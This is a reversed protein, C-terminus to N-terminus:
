ISTAFPMIKKERGFKREALTQMHLNFFTVPHLTVDLMWGEATRRWSLKTNPQLAAPSPLFVTPRIRLM